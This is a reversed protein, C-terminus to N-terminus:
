VILNPIMDYQACNGNKADRIRTKHKSLNGIVWKSNSNTSQQMTTTTAFEIDNQMMQTVQPNTFVVLM